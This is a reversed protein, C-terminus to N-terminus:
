PASAPFNRPPPSSRCWATPARAMDEYEILDGSMWGGEGNIYVATIPAIPWLLEALMPFAVGTLSGKVDHMNARDYEFSLCATRADISM